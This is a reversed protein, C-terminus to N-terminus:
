YATQGCFFTRINVTEVIRWHADVIYKADEENIISRIM